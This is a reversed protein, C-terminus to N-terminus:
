CPQPQSFGGLVRRRHSEFVAFRVRVPCVAAALFLMPTVALRMRFGNGFNSVVFGLGIFGLISLFLLLLLLRGIGAKRFPESFVANALIFVMLAILYLSDGFAMLKPMSTVQWPFPLMILGMTQVPVRLYWPLNMYVAASVMHSGGGLKEEHRQFRDVASKDAIDAPNLTKAGINGAAVRTAFMAAGAGVCFLPATLLLLSLFARHNRLSSNVLNIYASILPFMLLTLVIYLLEPRLWFTAVAGFGVLVMNEISREYWSRMAGAIMVTIALFILPDRLGFLSFNFGGPYLSLLILVRKSPVKGFHKLLLVCAIPAALAGIAANSMLLAIRSAGFMLWVPINIIVQAAFEQGLLGSWGHGDMVYYQFLEVSRNGALKTELFYFEENLLIMVVRALYGALFIGMSISVVGRGGFLQATVFLAAAGLAGWVGILMLLQIWDM